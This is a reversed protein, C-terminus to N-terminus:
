AAEKNIDLFTDEVVQYTIEDISDYVDINEVRITVSETTETLKELYGELTLETDDDELYYGDVFFISKSMRKVYLIDEKISKLCEEKSGSGVVELEIGYGQYCFGSTTVTARIVKM